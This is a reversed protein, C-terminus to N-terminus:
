GHHEAGFASPGAFRHNQISYSDSFRQIIRQSNCFATMASQDVFRIQFARYVVPVVLRAYQDSQRM